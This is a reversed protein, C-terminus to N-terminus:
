RSMAAVQTELYELARELQPDEDEIDGAEVRIDPELGEGEILRGEPSYWRGVTFYLGSGNNLRKPLNVSGKGFTTTGVLIAREHDQLAGSLVESASASFRNVLVVLPIDQALGNSKVQYDTRHGDGDVAYLVLGDTLFQSAINVTTSLFGGGNNRLDLIMGQAGLEGMEKLTDALIEDTNDAFTSLKVYAIEGPLMEWSISELQIVSRVIEIVVPEVANQHQVLLRVTSGEAGRIRIVSEILSWGETSADDVELIVDGPQIGAREAPSNPMPEIITLRSNVLDVRAGIGEFKGQSDETYLAYEDPDLFSTYPDGLADLMGEIAAQALLEPDPRDQSDSQYELMADIATQSLSQSDLDDKEVFDESLSNWVEVITNSEPSATTQSLREWIEVVADIDAPPTPTIPNSAAGLSGCAVGIAMSAMLLIALFFTSKSLTRNM